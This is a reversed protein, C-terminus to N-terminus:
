ENSGFEKLEMRYILGSTVFQKGYCDQETCYELVEAVRQALGVNRVYVESRIDKKVLIDKDDHHRITVAQGATVFQNTFTDSVEFVDYRDCKQGNCQEDGGETNFANGNWRLGVEVPFQLKVYRTNGEAVVAQRTDAWSTWTGAASWPASTGTRKERRIVYATSGASNLFSDVVTTRLEFKFESPVNQVIRTSDVEYIAWSGVRLPFYATGVDVPLEEVPDCSLTLVAIVLFSARCFRLLVTKYRFL